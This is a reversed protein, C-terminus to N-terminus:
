DQQEVYKFSMELNLATLLHFLELNTNYVLWDGTDDGFNVFYMRVGAKTTDWWLKSGDPMMMEGKIMEKV